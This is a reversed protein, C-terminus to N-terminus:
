KRDNTALGFPSGFNAGIIYTFRPVFNTSEYTGAVNTAGFATSISDPLVRELRSGDVALGALVEETDTAFNIGETALINPSTVATSTTASLTTDFSDTFGNVTTADNVAAQTHL